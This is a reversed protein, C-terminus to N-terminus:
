PTSGGDAPHAATGDRPRSQWARDSLRNLDERPLRELLRWGLAVTEEMTRRHPGQNIFEREFADAFELARRDVDLLGAAGVIAAMGRAERGRAYCAYLQDSWERHDRFTSREGIGANM